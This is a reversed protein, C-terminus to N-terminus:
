TTIILPCTQSMNQIKFKMKFSYYCSKKNALLAVVERWTVLSLFRGIQSHGNIKSTLSVYSKYQKNKNWYHIMISSLCMRVNNIPRGYIDVNEHTYLGYVKQSGRGGLFLVCWCKKLALFEWSFLLFWVLFNFTYPNKKSKVSREVRGFTYQKYM